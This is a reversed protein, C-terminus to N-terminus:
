EMVLFGVGIMGVRIPNNENELKELVKDVIIM